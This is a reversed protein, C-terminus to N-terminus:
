KCYSRFIGCKNLNWFVAILIHFSLVNLGGNALGRWANGTFRHFIKGEHSQM